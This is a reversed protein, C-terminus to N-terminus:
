IAGGSPDLWRYVYSYVSITIAASPIGRGFAVQWGRFLQRMVGTPGEHLLTRSLTKAVSISSGHEASQIWTKATDLPLSAVWFALGSMAGAFVTVPFTPSEGFPTLWQQTGAMTLFFWGCGWGDRAVSWSAGRWLSTWGHKYVSQQIVDWARQQKIRLTTMSESTSAAVDRSHQAIMQNRVFEVPTVFLFANVAGGIAGCWFRDLLSLRSAEKNVHSHLLGQKQQEHQHYDIIFQQTLNNVSFVTAKYVGQAALVPTMGTYLARVGGYHITQRIVQMPGMRHHSAHSHSPKLSSPSSLSSSAISTSALPQMGSNQLKTRILDMPYMVLTSTIGSVSGALISNRVMDDHKFSAASSSLTRKPM